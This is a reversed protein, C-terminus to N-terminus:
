EKHVTKQEISIHEKKGNFKDSTRLTRHQGRKGFYSFEVFSVLM